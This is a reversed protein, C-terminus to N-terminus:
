AFDELPYEQTTVEMKVNGAGPSNLFVELMTAWADDPTSWSVAKSRDCTVLVQRELAGYYFGVAKRDRNDAIRIVYREEKNSESM